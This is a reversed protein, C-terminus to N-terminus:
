LKKWHGKDFWLFFASKSVMIAEFNVGDNSTLVKKYSYEKLDSHEILYILERPEFGFTNALLYVSTLDEPIKENLEDQILDCPDLKKFWPHERNLSVKDQVIFYLPGETSKGIKKLIVSRVKAGYHDEIEKLREPTIKKKFVNLLNEETVNEKKATILTFIEKYVEKRIVNGIIISM